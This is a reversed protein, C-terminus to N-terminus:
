IKLGVQMKGIEGFLESKGHILRKNEDELLGMKKQLKHYREKM